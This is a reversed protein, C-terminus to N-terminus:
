KNTLVIKLALVAVVGILGARQIKLFRMQRGKKKLELDCLDAIKQKDAILVADLKIANKLDDITSRQNNTLGKLTRTQSFLSDAEEKCEQLEVLRVNAKRLDAIPIVAVTDKGRLEVSQAFSGLWLVTLTLACM